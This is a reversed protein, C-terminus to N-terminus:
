VEKELCVENGFRPKISPALTPKRTVNRKKFSFSQMKGSNIIVNLKRKCQIPM